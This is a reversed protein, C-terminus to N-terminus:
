HKESLKEAELATDYASLLMNGAHKGGSLLFRSIRNQERHTLHSFPNFLITGDGPQSQSGLWRSAMTPVEDLNEKVWQRNSVMEDVDPVCLSFEQWLNQYSNKVYLLRSKEYAAILLRACYKTHRALVDVIEQADYIDTMPTFPTLLLRDYSRTNWHRLHENVIAPNARITKVYPTVVSSPHPRIPIDPTLAQWINARSERITDFHSLYSDFDDFEQSPPVTKDHKEPEYPMQLRNGYVLDLPPKRHPDPWTQRIHRFMQAREKQTVPRGLEAEKARIATALKNVASKRAGSMSTPPSYRRGQRYLEQLSTYVSAIVRKAYSASCTFNEKKSARHLLDLFSEAIVADVFDPDAMLASKMKCHVLAYEKVQNYADEKESETTFSLTM